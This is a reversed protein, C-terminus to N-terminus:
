EDQGQLLISKQIKMNLFPSTHLKWMYKGKANYGTLFQLVVIRVSCNIIDNAIPSQDLGYHSYKFKLPRLDM